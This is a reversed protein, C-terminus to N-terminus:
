GPRRSNRLCMLCKAAQFPRGELAPHSAEVKKLDATVKEKRVARQLIAGGIELGWVCIGKGAENRETTEVVM